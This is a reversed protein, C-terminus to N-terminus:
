EGSLRAREGSEPRPAVVLLNHMAGALTAAAEPAESEIVQALTWTQDKPPMIEPVRHALYRMFEFDPAGRDFGFTAYDAIRADAVALLRLRADRAAGVVARDT